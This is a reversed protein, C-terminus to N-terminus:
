HQQQTNLEDLTKKLRKRQEENLIQNIREHGSTRSTRYRAMLEAQEMIFADLVSELDRAQQESLEFERDFHEMAAAKDEAILAPPKPPFWTRRAVEWSFAGTVVGSVFIFAVMSFLKVKCAPDKSDLM